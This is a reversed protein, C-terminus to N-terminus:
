VPAPQGLPESCAVDRGSIVQLELLPEYLQASGGDCRVVAASSDSYCLLTVTDSCLRLEM